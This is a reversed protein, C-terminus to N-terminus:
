HINLLGSIIADIPAEIKYMDEIRDGEGLELISVILGITAVSSPIDQMDSVAIVAQATARNILAPIDKKEFEPNYDTKDEEVAKLIEKCREQEMLTAVEVVLALRLLRRNNPLLLTYIGYLRIAKGVRDDESGINRLEDRLKDGYEALKALRKRDLDMCYM